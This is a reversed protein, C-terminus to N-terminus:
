GWRDSDAAIEDETELAKVATVTRQDAESIAEEANPEAGSEAADPVSKSAIM